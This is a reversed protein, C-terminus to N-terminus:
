HEDELERLRALGSETTAFKVVPSAASDPACWASPAALVTAIEDPGVPRLGEDDLADAASLMEVWGAHVMTTLMAAARARATDGALGVADAVEARADWLGTVDEVGLWLLRKVLDSPANM